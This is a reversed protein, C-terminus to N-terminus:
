KRTSNENYWADTAEQWIDNSIFSGTQYTLAINRLFKINANFGEEISQIILRVWTPAMVYLSSKLMAEKFALIDYSAEHHTAVWGENTLELIAYEAGSETNFHVGCAGPNVILTQNLVKKWPQHSHACVLVDSKVFDVAEKLRAQEKDEYLHENCDFPSGHVLTVLSENVKVQRQTPLSRLYAINKPTLQKASWVISAMQDVGEWEKHLGDLYELVYEERNGKIVIADLIQILDLVENPYNCDTILDGAILYRTIGKEKLDSLIAKLAYLNGHIDGIVGFKM